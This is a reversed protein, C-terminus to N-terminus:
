RPQQPRGQPIDQHREVLLGRVKSNHDKGRENLTGFCGPLEHLCDAASPGIPGAVPCGKLCEQERPATAAQLVQPGKIVLRHHPGEPRKMPMADGPHAMLGVRGQHVECCVMTRGCGRCRGFPECRRRDGRTLLHGSQMPPNIIRELTLPKPQLLPEIQRCAAEDVRPIAQGLVVPGKNGKAGAPSLERSVAHRQARSAQLAASESEIPQIRLRDQRAAVCHDKVGCASRHHGHRAQGGAHRDAQVHSIATHIGLDPCDM